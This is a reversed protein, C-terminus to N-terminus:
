LADLLDMNPLPVGPTDRSLIVEGVERAPCLSFKLCTKIRRYLQWKDENHWEFCDKPHFASTIILTKAKFQRFGGKHPVLVPWQDMLRLMLTLSASGYRFEDWVVISQGDYGDWWPGM